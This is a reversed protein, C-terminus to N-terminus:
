SITIRTSEGDTSCDDVLIIEKLLHKPSQLIVSWATRLIVSMLENYFIVIISAQLQPNYVKTRCRFIYM